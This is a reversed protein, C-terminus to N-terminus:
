NVFETFDQNLYSIGEPNKIRIFSHGSASHCINCNLTLNDFAIIIDENVGNEVSQELSELAPLITNQALEAINVGDHLAHHDVVVEFNEELEHNIYQMLEKNDNKMAFYFKAHYLQIQNMTIGLGPVYSKSEELQKEMASIKEQLESSNNNCALSIIMVVVFLSMLKLKMDCM